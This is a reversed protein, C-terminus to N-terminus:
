EIGQVPGPWKVAPAVEKGPHKQSSAREKGMQKFFESYALPEPTSIAMGAEPTLNKVEAGM